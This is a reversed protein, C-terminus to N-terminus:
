EWLRGGDPERRRRQQRRPPAEHPQVPAGLLELRLRHLLRLALVPLHTLLLIGPANQQQEIRSGHALYDAAEASRGLRLGEDDSERRQAPGLVEERIRGHEDCPRQGNDRRM